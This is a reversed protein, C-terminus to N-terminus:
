RVFILTNGLPDRMSLTTGNDIGYATVNSLIQFYLTETDSTSICYKLTSIIPGISIQNGFPSTEGNLTYSGQYNNCGGYGNFTGQDYFTITIPEAFVTLVSQGGQSGMASLNWDGLLEPDIVPGTAIVTPTPTITPTPTATQPVPTTACGAILIGAAVFTLLVAILVKMRFQYEGPRM